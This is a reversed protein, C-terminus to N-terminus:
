AQVRWFQWWKRQPSDCHDRRNLESLKRLIEPESGSYRIAGCCNVSIARIAQETEEATSPQRKFYCHSEGKGEHFGMLTPAESLPLMCIICQHDEVYFAGPANLPHPKRPGTM